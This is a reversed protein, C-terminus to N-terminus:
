LSHLLYKQLWCAALAADSHEARQLRCEASTSFGAPLIGSPEGRQLICFIQEPVASASLLAPRSHAPPVAAGQLQLCDMQLLSLSHSPQMRVQLDVTTDARPAFPSRELFAPLPVQKM